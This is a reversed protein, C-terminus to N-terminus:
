PVPSSVPARRDSPVHPTFTEAIFAKAWAAGRLRLWIPENNAPFVLDFSLFPCCRREAAIFELIAALRAPGDAFRYSFGDPYEAVEDVHAFITEAIQEGRIAMERESLLCGDGVSAEKGSRNVGRQGENMARGVMDPITGVAAVSHQGTLVPRGSHGRGRHTWIHSSTFGPKARDDVKPPERRHIQFPEVMPGANEALPKGAPGNM